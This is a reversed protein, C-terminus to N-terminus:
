RAPPERDSLLLHVIGAPNRIWHSPAGVGELSEVEDCPHVGARALADTAAEMDDTRLELWVDAQSYADVCDLWLTIPGFELRHSRSITPTSETGAEVLEFGLVDRYFSVTEEYSARPIKMAVNVGGQFRPSSM